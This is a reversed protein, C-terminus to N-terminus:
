GTKSLEIIGSFATNILMESTQVVFTRPTLRPSQRCDSCLSLDRSKTHLFALYVTTCDQPFNINERCITCLALLKRKYQRNYIHLTINSIKQM